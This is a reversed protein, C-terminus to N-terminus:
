PSFPFGSGPRSFGNRIMQEYPCGRPGSSMCPIPAAPRAQKAPPSPNPQPVPGAARAVPAALAPAATQPPGPPSRPTVPAQLTADAQPGANPTAVTYPITIRSDPGWTHYAIAVVGATSLLFATMAIPRRVRRASWRAVPTAEQVAPAAALATDLDGIGAFADAVTTRLSRRLDARGCAPRDPSPRSATALTGETLLKVLRDGRYRRRRRVAEARHEPATLEAALVLLEDLDAAVDETSGPTFPPVASGRAEAGTERETV